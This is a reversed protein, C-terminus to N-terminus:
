DGSHGDAFLRDLLRVLQKAAEDPPLTRIINPALAVAVNRERLTRAERLPWVLVAAIFASPVTWLYEGQAVAAVLAAIGLLFMVGIGALYFWEQFRFRYLVADVRVSDLPDHEPLTASSQPAASPTM